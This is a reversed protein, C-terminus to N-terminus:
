KAPTSAWALTILATLQMQYKQAHPRLCSFASQLSQRRTSSELIEHTLPNGHLCWLSEHPKAKENLSCHQSQSVSLSSFLVPTEAPDRCKARCWIKSSLHFSHSWPLNCYPHFISLVQGSTFFASVVGSFNNPLVLCATLSFLVYFSQDDWPRDLVTGEVRSAWERSGEGPKCGDVSSRPCPHCISCWKENGDNSRDELLKTVGGLFRNIIKDEKIDLVHLEVLDYFAKHSFIVWRHRKAWDQVKLM